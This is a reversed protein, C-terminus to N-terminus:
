IRDNQTGRTEAWGRPHALGQCGQRLGESNRHHMWSRACRSRGRSSHSSRRLSEATGLEGSKRLGETTTKMFEIMARIWDVSRSKMMTAQDGFTMIMYKM